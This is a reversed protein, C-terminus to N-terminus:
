LDVPAGSRLSEVAALTARTSAVLQEFPIPMEGGGTAAAVFRRMEEEFGKDQNAAKIREQKGRKSLTLTRFDDLIAAGGEGYVELYEKGMRSDGMATYLV